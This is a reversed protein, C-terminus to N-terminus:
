CEVFVPLPPFSPLPEIIRHHHFDCSGLAKILIGGGGRLYLSFHVAAFSTESVRDLRFAWLAERTRRERDSLRKSFLSLLMNLGKHLEHFLWALERHALCCVQEKM